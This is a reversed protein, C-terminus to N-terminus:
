DTSWCIRVYMENEDVLLGSWGGARLREGLDLVATDLHLKCIELKKYMSGLQEFYRVCNPALSSPILTTNVAAHHGILYGVRLM